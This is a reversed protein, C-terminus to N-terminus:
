VLFISAISLRVISTRIEGLPTNHIIEIVFFYFIEPGLVKRFAVAVPLGHRQEFPKHEIHELSSMLSLGVVSEDSEADWFALEVLKARLLCKGLRFPKMVSAAGGDLPHM